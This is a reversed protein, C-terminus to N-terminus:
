SVDGSSAIVLDAPFSGIDYAMLETTGDKNPKQECRIRDGDRILAARFVDLSLLWWLHIYGEDNVHGYFLWDAWGDIIKALETKTQNTRRLRITFQRGWREAFGPRRLRCAVKISKNQLILLDAAQETDVKFPSVELLYPGVLTKVQEIHADSWLRDVQYDAQPSAM